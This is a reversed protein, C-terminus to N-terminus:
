QWGMGHSHYGLDESFFVAVAVRSTYLKEEPWIMGLDTTSNKTTAALLSMLLLKRVLESSSDCALLGVYHSRM